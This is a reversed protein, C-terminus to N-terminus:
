LLVLRGRERGELQQLLSILYAAGEFLCRGQILAAGSFHFILYAAAASIRTFVTSQCHCFMQLNMWISQALLSLHSSRYTGQGALSLYPSLTPFHVASSDRLSLSSQEKKTRNSLILKPNWFTKSWSGPLKQEPSYFNLSYNEQKESCMFAVIYLCIIRKMPFIRLLKRVNQSLADTM